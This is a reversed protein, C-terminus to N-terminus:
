SLAGLSPGIVSIFERRHVNFSVDKLALTSGKATEFTKFLNRVQLKIPRQRIKAFRAAVEPAQERYDPLELSTNM